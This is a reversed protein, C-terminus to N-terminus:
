VVKDAVQEFLTAFDIDGSKSQADLENIGWEGLREILRYPTTKAVEAPMLMEVARRLTQDPDFSGINLFPSRDKLEPPVAGHALALAVGFRFCDMKEAFVGSEKLGDLKDNGSSSLGITTIEQVSM